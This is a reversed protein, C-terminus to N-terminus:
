YQSNNALYYLTIHSKVYILVHTMSTSLNIFMLHKKKVFYNLAQGSDCAHKNNIQLVTVGQHQGSM